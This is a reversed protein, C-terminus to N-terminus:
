FSVQFGLSTRRGIFYGGPDDLEGGIRGNSDIWRVNKENSLNRSDVYLIANAEGWWPLRFTKEVKVDINFFSPMRDNNQYFNAAAVRDFGTATFYRTYPRGTHWQVVSTIALDWPVAVSTVAKVTHRQDWSLPYVRVGPPLGFQAIYFGDSASGSTGEAKMYTYSLEGTIWAGRERALVLELGQSEAFPTNVYEAFGYNGALKSDAPIFTKTDVLNNTEKRFYTASAVLNEPLIYKFSIEWLKSREPELNPNGTIAPVGKGLAVRDLGTYLYDFLPYQFYWGLNVFVYGNETAQIAAGFRPSFQYKVDAKVSQGPKFVYATDGLLTAEVAPRSARPDLYDFRVGFNLLIGEEPVDMKDQLYFSGSRPAFAYGSSFDLQPENVLPKGFYTMRPEFRVIDSHLDYFNMEAGFKLLHVKEMKLTADVKATTTQQWSRAWWARSGSVVYRLYFDYMYPPLLTVEERAGYGIDTGAHYRSISATYFLRETISHSLIVALRNSQRREPPLGALDYRWSFDYDHWRRDAYLAHAGLRLTPTVAYDIKALANVNQDVPSRVVGQFDQWWRTDSVSGSVVGIYWLRDPIVPGSAFGEFQSERNAQTAGFLNDRDARVMARHDTGGTRTVINVIGSLANGYEPEFGGTLISMGLVSSKPVTLASGGGMLDQVPLGDVYYMVETSKGGRVNGESTTGAKLGVVDLVNSVPLAQVDQGSIIFTTGTIDTQILPKDLTVVIEELELDTPELTVTLRTRLDPNIIVGKLVSARYGVHSVRVDYVGARINQLEFRGDIGSAIGRDHGMLLITVGPLPEGTKKDRVIGELIGNTGACATPGGLLAFALLACAATVASKM